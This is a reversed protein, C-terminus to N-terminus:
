QAEYTWTITDYPNINFNEKTEESYHPDETEYQDEAPYTTLTFTYTGAVAVEINTKKPASDGLGAASKLYQTGDLSDTALYGYGRQDEWSSNTAFQFQDGEALTVTFTYENAEANETKTFKQADGVVEGWNSEALVDSEGSGVIYFERTDEQYSVFGAYISVDETVATSFDYARSMQPNLYWGVFTYGDKEPTTEAVTEGDAVTVTDLVTTGDSDYMTVTHEGSVAEGAVETEVAADEGTATSGCGTFLVTASMTMTLLMALLAKRKM